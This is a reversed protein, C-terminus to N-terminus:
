RSSSFHQALEFCQKRLEPVAGCEWVTGKRLSGIAFYTSSLQGCADQLAGIPSVALGLQLEDLKGTGHQLVCQVLPISTIRDSPGMCNILWNINIATSLNTHRPKIQAYDAGVHLVRGSLVQFQNKKTLMVLLDSLQSHVRHRHINWYPVLHRLFRKKDALSLQEWLHPIHKRVTNVVVQWDGAHRMNDQSMLRLVATLQRLRHPLVPLTFAQRNIQHPLPLLGHRSLAYIKGQHQQHHLTLATDIMSLGTGVILVADQKPINTPATYDWPNVISNMQNAVPFPFKSPPHNGLALVVKDVIMSDLNKLRLCAQQGYPVIDVVEQAILRLKILQRKDVTVAQLLTQLYKGYLFRPAFQESIPIKQNFYASIDTQSELWNVFHDPVDEFASMDNARVNLLHFPYPTSYAEGNGFISKKEFLIVEIPNVALKHLSAVLGVGSYGAGIVGIKLRAVEFLGQHLPAPM